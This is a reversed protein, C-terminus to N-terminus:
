LMQVDEDDEALGSVDSATDSFDQDDEAPKLTIKGALAFETMDMSYGAWSRGEILNLDFSEETGGGKEM